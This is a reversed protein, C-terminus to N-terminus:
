AHPPCACQRYEPQLRNEVPVKLNPSQQKNKAMIQLADKKIFVFDSNDIAFKFRTYM